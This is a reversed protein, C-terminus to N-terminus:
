EIELPAPDRFWWCYCRFIPRFGFLFPDDDLWGNEPAINTELLTGGGFIFTQQPPNNHFFDQWFSGQMNIQNSLHHYIIKKHSNNQHKKERVIDSHRMSHCQFRTPFKSHISQGSLQHFVDRVLQNSFSVWNQCPKISASNRGDVPHWLDKSKSIQSNWLSELCAKNMRIEPELIIRGMKRCM